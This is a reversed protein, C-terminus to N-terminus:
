LAFATGSNVMCGGLPLPIYSRSMSSMPSRTEGMSVLLVNFIRPVEGTSGWCANIDHHKLVPDVKVNM